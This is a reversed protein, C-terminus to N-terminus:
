VFIEDWYGAKFDETLKMVSSFEYFRKKQYPFVNEENLFTQQDEYSFGDYNGNEFIISAGEKDYDDFDNYVDYVVGRMGPNGGLMPMALTVVDGVKLNKM